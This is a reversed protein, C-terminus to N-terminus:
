AALLGSTAVQVFFVTVKLIGTKNYGSTSTQSGSREVTNTEVETSTIWSLCSQRQRAAVSAPQDETPKWQMEAYNKGVSNVGRAKPMVVHKAPLKVRERQILEANIAFVSARDELMDSNQMGECNKQVRNAGLSAAPTKVAFEVSEPPKTETTDVRPEM